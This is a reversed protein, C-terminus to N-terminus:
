TGAPPEHLVLENGDPDAFPHFRGFPTDDIPRTFAVGAAALAASTAEIDDVELFLGRISGPADTWDALALDLGGNPATLHLWRMGPGMQNDHLVSFGLVDRYFALAREQDAVPVMLVSAHSIPM